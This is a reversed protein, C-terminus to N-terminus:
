ITTEDCEGEVEEEIWETLKRQAPFRKCDNMYM